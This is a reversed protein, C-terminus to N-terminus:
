KSNQELWSILATQTKQDLDAEGHMRVYGKPPMHGESIEEKCEYLLHKQDDISYDGWTSFNMAKRGNKIHGSIWWSVPAVYTYWPYKTQYSHCDYCAAELAAQVDPTPQQLTAFTDEKRIEFPGKEIQFFQALVLLIVIAPLIKKKNM